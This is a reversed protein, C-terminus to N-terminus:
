PWAPAHSGPPMAPRTQVAPTRELGASHRVTALEGWGSTHKEVYAALDPKDVHMGGAVRGQRRLWPGTQAQSLRVHRSGGERRQRRLAASVAFAMLFGTACDLIFSPMAKPAAVGAAEAEALNFGM